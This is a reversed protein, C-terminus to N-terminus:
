DVMMADGEVASMASHVIEDLFVEEVGDGKLDELLQDDALRWIHTGRLDSTGQDRFIDELEQELDKELEPEPVGGPKEGMSMGHDMGKHGEAEYGDLLSQIHQATRLSPGYRSIEYTNRLSYLSITPGTEEEDERGHSPESNQDPDSEPYAVHVFVTRGDEEDMREVDSGIPSGMSAADDNDYNM